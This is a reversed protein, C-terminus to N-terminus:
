ANRTDTSKPSSAANARARRKLGEAKKKEAIKRVKETRARRADQDAKDLRAKLERYATESFKWDPHEVDCMVDKKPARRRLALSMCHKHHVAFRCPGGLRVWVFRCLVEGYNNFVWMVSHFWKRKFWAKM